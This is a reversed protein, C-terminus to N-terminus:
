ALHFFDMVFPYINYSKMQIFHEFYTFGYIYVTTAGWPQTESPAEPSSPPLQHCTSTIPEQPHYFHEWNITTIM